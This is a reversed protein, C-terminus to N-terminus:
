MSVVVRESGRGFYMKARVVVSLGALCRVCLRGLVIDINLLVMTAKNRRPLAYGANVM